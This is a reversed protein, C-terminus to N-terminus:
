PNMLSAILRELRVRVDEPPPEFDVGMGKGFLVRRVVCNLTIPPILLVRVTCAAGMWLPTETVIFMGCMSVDTIFAPKTEGGHLVEADAQFGYRVYKRREPIKVV